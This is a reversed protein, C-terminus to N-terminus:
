YSFLDIGVLFGLEGDVGCVASHSISGSSENSVIEASVIFIVSASSESLPFRQVFQLDLSFCQHLACNVMPALSLEILHSAGELVEHRLLLSFLLFGFNSPM